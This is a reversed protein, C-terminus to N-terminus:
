HRRRGRIRMGSRSVSERGRCARTRRRRKARALRLSQRSRQRGTSRQGHGRTRNTAPSNGGGLGNQRGCSHRTFWRSRGRRGV